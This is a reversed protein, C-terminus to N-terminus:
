FYARNWRPIAYGYTGDTFGGSFGELDSDTNALNLVEVANFIPTAGLAKNHGRARAPKQEEVLNAWPKVYLSSAMSAACLVLLARASSRM